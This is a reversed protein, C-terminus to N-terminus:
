CRETNQAQIVEESDGLDYDRVSRMAAITSVDSWSRTSRREGGLRLSYTTAHTAHITIETPEDPQRLATPFM